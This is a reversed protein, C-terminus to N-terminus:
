IKFLLRDTENQTHMQGSFVDDFDEQPERRETEPRDEPRVENTRNFDFPDQTNDTPRVPRAPRANQLEKLQQGLDTQVMTQAQLAIMNKM